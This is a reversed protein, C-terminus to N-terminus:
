DIRHGVIVEEESIRHCKVDVEASVQPEILLSPRPKNTLVEIQRIGTCEDVARRINTEPFPLAPDNRLHRASRHSSLSLFM